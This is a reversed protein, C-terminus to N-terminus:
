IISSGDRSRCVRKRASIAAFSTDPNNSVGVVIAQDQSSIIASMLNLQPVNTKQDLTPNRGEGEGLNRRPSLRDSVGVGPGM